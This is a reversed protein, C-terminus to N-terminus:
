GQDLLIGHALSHSPGQAVVVPGCAAIILARAALAQTWVLAVAILLRHVAVFIWHLWFYIFIYNKKVELFFSLNTRM